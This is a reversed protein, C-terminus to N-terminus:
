QNIGFGNKGVRNDAMERLDQQYNLPVGSSPGHSCRNVKGGKMLHINSNKNARGDKNIRGGVMLNAKGDRNIRGGKNAKGGAMLNVKGDKNAKGGVM